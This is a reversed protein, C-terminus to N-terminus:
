IIEKLIEVTHKLGEEANFCGRWSLGLLSTSELSRNSMPNFGKKEAETPLEVKLEVNGAKALLEGLEKITIISEPNSINYAHCNECNKNM